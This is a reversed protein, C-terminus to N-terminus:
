TLPQAKRAARQKVLWREIDVLTITGAHAADIEDFHEAIRPMGAKAEDRTLKGDHNADAASFRQQLQERVREGRGAAASAPQALAAAAPLALLLALGLHSLSLRRQRPISQKM